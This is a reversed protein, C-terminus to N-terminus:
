IGLNHGCYPCFVFDEQLIPKGCKLCEAQKKKRTGKSEDFAAVREAGIEEATLNFLDQVRNLLACEYEDLDGDERYSDFLRIYLDIIDEKAFKNLIEIEYDALEKYVILNSEIDDFKKDLMEDCKSCYDEESNEPLDKGCEACKNTM